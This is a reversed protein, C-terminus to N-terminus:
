FGLSPDFRDNEKKIASPVPLISVLYGKQNKSKLWTYYYDNLRSSSDVVVAFCGQEIKDSLFKYQAPSLNHRRDKAKLEIWVSQGYNNNGSLDPYGAEAQGEVYRGAEMSWVAKSEVVHVFVSNQKAWELVDKEVLKEPKKNTRQEKNPDVGGNNQREISRILLDWGKKQDM